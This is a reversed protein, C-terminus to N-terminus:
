KNKLTIMIVEPRNNVRFPFLSNGIGRSVIMSTKNETYLGSDYKPFLGQGPAILGGIFPIRFQGGHAHGSLVLDVECEVYDSFYEPHHSLVITFLDKNLKSLNDNMDFIEKEDVGYIQLSTNDKNLIMSENRLINVNLDLLKKELIEYEDLVRLEHNGNVYYVPAIKVAKEVFEYAVQIDTDYSDILDGTIVIIDPENNKIMELLKSNNSGIEDNHLDSLHAIKYNDFDGIKDNYIEIENVELAKNGWLIWIIFILIVFCIIKKM